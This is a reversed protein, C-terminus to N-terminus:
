ILSNHALEPNVEKEKCFPCHDHSILYNWIDAHCCLCLCCGCQMATRTLGDCMKCRLERESLYKSIWACSEEKWGLPGIDGRIPDAVWTDMIKTFYKRAKEIAVMADELCDSKMSFVGKTVEADAHALEIMYEIRRSEYDEDSEDDSECAKYPLFSQRRALLGKRGKMCILLGPPLIPM